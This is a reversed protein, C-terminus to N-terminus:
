KMADVTEARILRFQGVDLMEVTVVTVTSANEAGQDTQGIFGTEPVGEGLRTLYHNTLRKETEVVSKSEGNWIRGWGQFGAIVTVSNDPFRYVGDTRNVILVLVANGQSGQLTGIGPMQIYEGTHIIWSYAPVQPASQHNYYQNYDNTGDSYGALCGFGDRETNLYKQFDRTLSVEELGLTEPKLESLLLNKDPVFGLVKSFDMTVGQLIYKGDTAVTIAATTEAPTPTVTEATASTIASDDNLAVNTDRFGGFLFILAIVVLVFLLLGGLVKLIINIINMSKGREEKQNAVTPIPDITTTHVPFPQGCNKCEKLDLTRTKTKCRSCTKRTASM